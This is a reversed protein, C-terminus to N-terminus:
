DKHELGPPSSLGTISLRMLSVWILCVRALHASLEEVFFDAQRLCLSRQWGKSDSINNLFILLFM